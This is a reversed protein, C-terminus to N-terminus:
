QWREVNFKGFHGRFTGLGIATGGDVFLNMIEAEKIETNPRITLKFEISWPLPLVPREKPNPIGKELRAVHRALYLGSAEDREPGFDGVTIPKGNRLIPIDGPHLPDLSEIDVFSLCANAIKKYARADRLRKPASNTNHASLFSVLNLAPICLTSTGPILYIKQTWDLKTANDGAYRDFMLDKTGCLCVSRIVAETRADSKISKTM